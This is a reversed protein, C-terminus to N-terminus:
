RWSAGSMSPGTHNHSRAVDAPVIYSLDHGAVDAPVMYSLGHGAVDAPVMYSLGHGAIKQQCEECRNRSGLEM